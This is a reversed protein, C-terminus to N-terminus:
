SLNTTEGCELAEFFAGGALTEEGGFAGINPAEPIVRRM